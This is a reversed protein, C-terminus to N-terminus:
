IWKIQGYFYFLIWITNTWVEEQCVHCKYSNLNTKLISFQRKLDPAKPSCQWPIVMHLIEPQFSFTVQCCFYTNMKIDWNCSYVGSSVPKDGKLNMSKIKLTFYQLYSFLFFGICIATNGTESETLCQCPYFFIQNFMPDLNFHFQTWFAGIELIGWPAKQPIQVLIQLM